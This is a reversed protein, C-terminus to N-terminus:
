YPVNWRKEWIRKLDMEKDFLRYLQHHHEHYYHYAYTGTLGEISGNVSFVLETM